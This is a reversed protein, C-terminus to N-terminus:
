SQSRGDTYVELEMEVQIGDLYPRVALSQVTLARPIDRLRNLFVATRAYDGSWRARIRYAELEIASVPAAAMDPGDDQDDEAMPDFDDIQQGISGGPELDLEVIEALDFDKVGSVDAVRALDLFLEERGREVPFLRTWVDLLAPGNEAMDKEMLLKAGTWGELVGIRKELDGLEHHGSVTSRVVPVVSMVVFALWAVGVLAGAAKKWNRPLQASGKLKM